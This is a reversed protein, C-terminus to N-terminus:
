VGKRVMGKIAKAGAQVADAFMAAAVRADFGNFRGGKIRGALYKRKCHFHKLFFNKQRLMSQTVSSSHVRYLLLAEPLKELRHGDALLRLWLDYDEINKQSSSYRYAKLIETRAMVSPHTLCNNVPMAKLIQAASVIKRDRQYFGCEIGSEDIETSFSAVAATSPNKDLWEVQRQLRHPLAIDDADMRAIYQGNALDIGRNLTYILGKNNENELYIIRTDNYSQIIAGSGDTSGDNILLLEFDTFSQTLISEVAQRLFKGANYVPLIVSVKPM